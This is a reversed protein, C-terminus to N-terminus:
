KKGPAKETKLTQMFAQMYLAEKYSALQWSVVGSIVATMVLAVPILVKAWKPFRAESITSKLKDMGASVEDFQAKLNAAAAKNQKEFLAVIKEIKESEATLAEEVAQEIHAQLKGKVFDIREGGAEKIGENIADLTEILGSRLMDFHEPMQKQLAETMTVMLTVNDQLTLVDSAVQAIVADKYEGLSDTM